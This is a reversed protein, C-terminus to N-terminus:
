DIITEGPHAAKDLWAALINLGPAIMNPKLIEPTELNPGRASFSAVIPTPQVGLRTGQFVITAIAPSKSKSTSDIYGRIEGDNTASVATAPLVHCDAVLREGDFAGNALIM